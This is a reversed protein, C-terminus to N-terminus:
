LDVPFNLAAFSLLTAQRGLLTDGLLSYPTRPFFRAALFSLCLIELFRQLKTPRPSCFLSIMRWRFILSEGGNFDNGTPLRAFLLPILCGVMWRRRLRHVVSELLLRFPCGLFILFGIDMTDHLYAKRTRVGGLEQM